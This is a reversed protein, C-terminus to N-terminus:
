LFLCKNKKSMLLHSNLNAGQAEENEKPWWNGLPHEERPLYLPTFLCAFECWWISSVFTFDFLSGLLKQRGIISCLMPYHYLYHVKSGSLVPTACQQTSSLFGNIEWEKWSGCYLSMIGSVKGAARAATPLWTVCNQGILCWFFEEPHGQSIIKRNSCAM